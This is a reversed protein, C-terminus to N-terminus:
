QFKACAVKGRGPHDSKRRCLICDAKEREVPGYEGYVMRCRQHQGSDSLNEGNTIRKDLHDIGEYLKSLLIFLTEIEKDSYVEIYKMKM